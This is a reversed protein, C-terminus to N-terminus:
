AAGIDAHIGRQADRLREQHEAECHRQGHEARRRTFHHQIPRNCPCQPRRHGEEVRSRQPADRISEGPIHVSHIIEQRIRNAHVEQRNPHNGRRKCQNNRVEM